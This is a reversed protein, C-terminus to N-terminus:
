TMTRERGRKRELEYPRRSGGRQCLARHNKGLDGDEDFFRGRPSIVERLLFRCLHVVIQYMNNTSLQTREETSAQGRRIEEFSRKNRAWEQQKRKAKQTNM